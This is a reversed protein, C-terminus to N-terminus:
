GPLSHIQSQEPLLRTCLMHSSPLLASTALFAPSESLLVYSGFNNAFDGVMNVWVAPTKLIDFVLPLLPTKQDNARQAPDYSRESLILKRESDTIFPDDEPM